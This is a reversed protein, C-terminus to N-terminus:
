KIEENQEGKKELEDTLKPNTDSKDQYNKWILFVIFIVAVVIILIIVPNEM